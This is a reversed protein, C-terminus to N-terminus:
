ENCYAVLVSVGRPVLQGSCFHAAGLYSLAGGLPRGLLHKDIGENMVVIPWSNPFRNAVLNINIQAPSFLYVARSGDPERIIFM